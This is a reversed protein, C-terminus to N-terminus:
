RDWRKKSAGQGTSESLSKQLVSGWVGFKRAPPAAAAARSSTRAARGEGRGGEGVGAKAAGGGAAADAFASPHDRSTQTGLRDHVSRGAARGGDVAQETARLRKSARGSDGDRRAPSGDRSSPYSNRGAAHERDDRDRSRSRSHSRSRSRRNDRDRSRTRERSRSRSRSRRRYGEEESIHCLSCHCCYVCVTCCLTLNLSGAPSSWVVATALLWLWLVRFCASHM